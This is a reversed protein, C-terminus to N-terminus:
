KKVSRAEFSKAFEIVDFDHNPKGVVQFGLPLGKSDKGYSLTIAPLGFYNCFFTNAPEIAQPGKKLAQQITPVRDSLTPLLLLDVKKFLLEDVAERDGKINKLDFVAMHFPISVAAIKQSTFKNEIKSFSKKIEASATFNQVLGIKLSKKSRIKQGEKNVTLIKLIVDTDPAFRTTIGVASFQIIADDAQEGELIGKMNILGNSAKFGTVGCCAAPIRCSGIADTDITAYCMGTAVAVASGGSSGGAVYKNNVPNLVKGFYSDTSTTGMGLRHMNTKGILIAGQEKLVRVVEADKKPVREKFHEFAATTRIGATDYFDKVAVPIGHLDGKWNGSNIQKDALNAEMRADEERITIFANLKRHMKINQLCNEVLESSSIKKAHLLKSIESITLGSKYKKM